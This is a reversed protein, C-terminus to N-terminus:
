SGSAMWAAPATTTARKALAACNRSLTSSCTVIAADLAEDLREAAARTDRPLMHQLWYDGCSQLCFYIVSWLHYQSSRLQDCVTHIYSLVIGREEGGSGGDEGRMAADPEVVELVRRSVDAEAFGHDGIAVGGVVIAMGILLVILPDM